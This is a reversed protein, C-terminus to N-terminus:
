LHGRRNDWSAVVANLQGVAANVRSSAAPDGSRIAACIMGLQQFARGLAEIADDVQGASQANKIFPALRGILNLGQVLGGIAQPHFSTDKARPAATTVRPAPQPVQRVAPDDRSPGATLDRPDPNSIFTATNKAGPPTAPLDGPRAPERENLGSPTGFGTGQPTKAPHPPPVTPANPNVPQYTPPAKPQNATDGPLVPQEPLGAPATGPPTAPIDGHPPQTTADPGRQGLLSDRTNVVM